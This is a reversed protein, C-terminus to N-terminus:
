FTEKLKAVPPNKNEDFHKCASADHKFKAGTGKACPANLPTRDTKKHGIHLWHICQRCTKGKPGTGAFHAMGIHTKLAARGYEDQKLNPNIKLLM